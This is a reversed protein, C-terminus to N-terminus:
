MFFLPLLLINALRSLWAILQLIHQLHFSPASLTTHYFSTLVRPIVICGFSIFIFLIFCPSPPCICSPVFVHGHGPESRGGTHHLAVFSRVYVFLFSQVTPLVSPQLRHLVTRFAPWILCSVHLILPPSYLVQPLPVRPLYPGFRAFEPTCSCIM